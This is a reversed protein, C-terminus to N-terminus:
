QENKFLVVFVYYRSCHGVYKVMKDYLLLKFNKFFFWDMHEGDLSLDAYKSEADHGFSDLTAGDPKILLCTPAVSM